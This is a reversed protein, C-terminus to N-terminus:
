MDFSATGGFIDVVRGALAEADLDAAALFNFGALDDDALDTHRLAATVACFDAAVEGNM